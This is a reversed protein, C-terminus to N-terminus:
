QIKRANGIPMDVRHSIYDGYRDKIADWEEISSVVHINKFPSLRPLYKKSLMVGRAKGYQMQDKLDIM